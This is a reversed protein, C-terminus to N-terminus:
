VTCGRLTLRGDNAIGGGNPGIGGTLTLGSITVTTAPLIEFVRSHGDGSITLKDAGPGQITLPGSIKFIQLADSTLTITHGALGSDFTITSDGAAHDAQTIAWRLTDIGSDGLSTVAYTSLLTRGELAEVTWCRRSRRRPPRLPPSRRAGRGIRR